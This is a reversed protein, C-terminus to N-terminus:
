SGTMSHRMAAPGFFYACIVISGAAAFFCWVSLFNVFFFLLSAVLGLAIIVGFWRLAPHSSAILPGCTAAAYALFLGSPYPSNNIYCLSRGVIYAAYPHHMVDYTSYGAVIAGGLFMVAIAAARGSKPEVLGSALPVLLPWVILAFVIFANALPPAAAEPLSHQFTLWLAGETAQQAAFVLPISALPVEKPGTAQTATAIGAIATVSATVFSATASFCM